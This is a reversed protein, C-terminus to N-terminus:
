PLPPPLDDKEIPPYHDCTEVKSIRALRGAIEQALGRERDSEMFEPINCLLIHDPNDLEPRAKINYPLRHIEGVSISCYGYNVELGAVAALPTRGMSLGDTHDIWRLYAKARVKSPRERFGKAAFARYIILDDALPEGLLPPRTGM